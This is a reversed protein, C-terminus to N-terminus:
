VYHILVEKVVYFVIFSCNVYLLLVSRTTWLVWLFLKFDHTDEKSFIYLSGWRLVHM